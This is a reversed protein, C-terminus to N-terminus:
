FLYLNTLRWLMRNYTEEHGRTEEEPKGSKQWKELRRLLAPLLLPSGGNKMMGAIPNEEQWDSLSRNQEDILRLVDGYTLEANRPLTSSLRDELVFPSELSLRVDGRNPVLLIDFPRLIFDPTAEMRKVAKLVTVGEAPELKCELALREGYPHETLFERTIDKGGQWRSQALQGDIRQLTTPGAKSLFFHRYQLPRRLFPDLKNEFIEERWAEATRGICETAERLAQRQAPTREGPPTNRLCWETIDRWALSVLCLSRQETQALANAIMESRAEIDEPLKNEAFAVFYRIGPDAAANEPLETVARALDFRNRSSPFQDAYWQIILRQLVEMSRTEPQVQETPPVSRVPDRATTQQPGLGIGFCVAFGAATKLARPTQWVDRFCETGHRRQLWCGGGCASAYVCAACRGRPTWQRQEEFGNEWIERLPRENINGASASRDLTSCPVVDGTPLVVCGAKGAGCFFPEDRLFPEWYGCYGIEDAMTVPFVNRKAAVFQVLERLQSRRLFLDKRCAARGEPVPLHIGWSSAGSSLVTGFTATLHKFNRATVTTGAATNVGLATFFHISQMAKDFAGPHGRFKDHFFKPGDLSVAAFVPPWEEIAKQTQANPMWATNLSWRVGNRRLEHIVEPLDPRALPEGGTILFESVGLEAIQRILDSVQRLPMDPADAPTALCHPCTLPCRLTAMWQVLHPIRTWGYERFFADDRIDDPIRGHHRTEAFAGM